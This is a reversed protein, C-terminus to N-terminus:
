GRWMVIDKTLPGYGLLIAEPKTGTVHRYPELVQSQVFEDVDGNYLYNCFNLFIVSPDNAIVADM